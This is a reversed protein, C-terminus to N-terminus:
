GFVRLALVEHEMYLYVSKNYLSGSPVCPM